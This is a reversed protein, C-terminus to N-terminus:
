VTDFFPYLLCRIIRILTKSIGAPSNTQLSLTLGLPAALGEVLDFRAFEVLGDSVLACKYLSVENSNTHTRRLKFVLLM